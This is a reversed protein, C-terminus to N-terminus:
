THSILGTNSNKVSIKTNKNLNKYAISLAMFVCTFLLFSVIVIAIIKLKNASDIDNQLKGIEAFASNENETDDSEVETEGESHGEAASDIPKAKAVTFLYFPRDINEDCLFLRMTNQTDGSVIFEFDDSVAAAYNERWLFPASSSTDKPTILTESLTFTEAISSRTYVIRHGVYTKIPQLLLKLGDASLRVMYGSQEFSDYMKPAIRHHFTMQNSSDLQLVKIGYFDGNFSLMARSYELAMTKGDRSLTMEIASPTETERIELLNEIFLPETKSLKLKSLNEDDSLYVFNNQEDTNPAIFVHRFFPVNELTRVIFTQTDKDFFLFDLCNKRTGGSPANAYTVVISRFDDSVDFNFYGINDHFDKTFSHEAEFATGNWRFMFLGKSATMMLVRDFADSFEFKRIESDITPNTIKTFEVFDNGDFRMVKIFQFESFAFLKKERHIQTHTVTLNASVSRVYNQCGGRTSLCQKTAFDM